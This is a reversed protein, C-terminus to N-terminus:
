EASDVGIPVAPTQVLFAARTHGVRVASGLVENLLLAPVREDVALLIDEPVHAGPYNVEFQHRRELLVSELTPASANTISPTRVAQGNLTVTRPTVVVLPGEAFSADSPASALRPLRVGGMGCTCESERFFPLLFWTLVLFLVGLARLAPLPAAVPAGACTPASRRVFSLPLNRFIRPGPVHFVHADPDLVCPLSRYVLM